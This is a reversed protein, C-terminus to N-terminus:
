VLLAQRLLPQPLLGLSNLFGQARDPWTCVDSYPVFAPRVPPGSKSKSAVLAAVNGKGDQVTCLGYAHGGTQYIHVESPPAEKAKLQLYYYLANQAGFPDNEAGM